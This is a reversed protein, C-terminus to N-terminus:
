YYVTRSDFGHSPSMLGGNYWKVLRGLIGKPIKARIIKLISFENEIYYM